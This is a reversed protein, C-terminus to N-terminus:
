VRTYGRSSILANIIFAIYRPICYITCVLYSQMVFKNARLVVNFVLFSLVSLPIYLSLPITTELQIVLTSDRPVVGDLVCSFFYYAPLLNFNFNALLTYLKGRRICIHCMKSVTHWQFQRNVYWPKANWVIKTIHTLHTIDPVKLLGKWKLVGEIWEFQSSDRYFGITDLNNGSSSFLILRM